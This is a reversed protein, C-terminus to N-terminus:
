VPLFTSMAHTVLHLSESVVQTALHVSSLQLAEHLVSRSLHVDVQVVVVVEDAPEPAYRATWLALSARTLTPAFLARETASLLGM